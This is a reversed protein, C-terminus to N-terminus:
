GRAFKKTGVAERPPNMVSGMRGDYAYNITMEVLCKAREGQKNNHTYDVTIKCHCMDRGLFAIDSSM